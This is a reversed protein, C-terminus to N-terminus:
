FASNRGDAQRDAWVDVLVAFAGVASAEDTADKSALLTSISADSWCEAVVDWGGDEYHELAYAKVYEVLTSNDVASLETVELRVRNGIVVDAFAREQLRDRIAQHLEDHRPCQWENGWGRAIAANVTDCAAYYAIKDAEEYDAPNISHCRSVLGVEWRVDTITIRLTRVKPIGVGTM